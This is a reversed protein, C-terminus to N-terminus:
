PSSVPIHAPVFPFSVHLPILSLFNLGDEPKCHFCFGAQETTGDAALGAPRGGGLEVIMDM